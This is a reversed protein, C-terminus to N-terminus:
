NPSRNGERIIKEEYWNRWKTSGNRGRQSETEEEKHSSHTRYDLFRQSSLADYEECKPGNPTDNLLLVMKTGNGGRQAIFSDSLGCVTTFLSHVMKMM